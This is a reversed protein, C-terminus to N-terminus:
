SAPLVELVQEENLGRGEELVQQRAIELINSM